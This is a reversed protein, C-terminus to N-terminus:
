EQPEPPVFGIVRLLQMAAEAVEGPAVKLIASLPRERYGPSAWWRWVIAYVSALAQMQDHDLDLVSASPRLVGTQELFAREQDLLAAAAAAREEDTADLVQDVVAAPLHAPESLAAVVEPRLEDAV